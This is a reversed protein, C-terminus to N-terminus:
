YQHSCHHFYRLNIRPSAATDNTPINYHMMVNLQDPPSRGLRSHYKTSINWQSLPKEASEVPAGQQGTRGVGRATGGM